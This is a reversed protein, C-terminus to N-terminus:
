GQEKPEEPLQASHWVAIIWLTDGKIKYFFRYPRVIVERFSLDPFEPILRGSELFRKLRALVKEAKERFSLAASPNDRYIYVVAELFQTRGTPTFRVKV